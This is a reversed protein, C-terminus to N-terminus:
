KFTFELVFNVDNSLSTNKGLKGKVDIVIVACINKIQLHMVENMIM